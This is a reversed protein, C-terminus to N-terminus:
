YTRLRLLERIGEWLKAAYRGTSVISNGIAAYKFRDRLRGHFSAVPFIWILALRVGHKGALLKETLMASFTMTIVGTSGAV